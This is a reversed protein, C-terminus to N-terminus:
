INIHRKKLARLVFVEYEVLSISGDSNKDMMEIYKQIDAETPDFKLGLMQYTDKLIQRIESGDLVGDRNVDYKEFISRAHRLDTEIREMDYGYVTILEHKLQDRTSHISNVIRTTTGSTKYSTGSMKEIRTNGTIKAETSFFAADDIINVGGSLNPGCLYKMCIQEMDALTLRGDRDHDHIELYHNIDQEKPILLKNINTYADIIMGKAEQSEIAGSRNQDFTGFLEKAIFKASSIDIPNFNLKSKISEKPYSGSVHTTSTYVQRSGSSYARDM